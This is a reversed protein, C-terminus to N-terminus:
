RTRKLIQHWNDTIDLYVRAKDKGIENIAKKIADSESSYHKIHKLDADEFYPLEAQDDDPNIKEIIILDAM